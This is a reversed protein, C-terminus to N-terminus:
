NRAWKIFKTKKVQPFIESTPPHTDSASSGLSGNRGRGGGGWQYRYATAQGLGEALARSGLRLHFFSCLVVVLVSSVGAVM